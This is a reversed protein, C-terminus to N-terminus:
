AVPQQPRNLRGGHPDDEVRRELRRIVGDGGAVPRHRPRQDSRQPKGPVLHSNRAPEAAVVAAMRIPLGANTLETSFYGIPEHATELGNAPWVKPEGIVEVM